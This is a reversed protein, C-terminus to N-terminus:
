IRYYKKKKLFIIVLIVSIILGIYLLTNGIIGTLVPENREYTITNIVDDTGINGTIEKTTNNLNANNNSNFTLYDKSTDTQITIKYTSNTDVDVTIEDNNTKNVDKTYIEM